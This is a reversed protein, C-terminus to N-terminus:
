KVKQIFANLKRQLKDISEFLEKVESEHFYGLGKCLLLQTELEFSSGIAIELFRKFDKDSSRSCGEATNSPISIAAKNLQSILNFQEKIPLKSTKLYISKAVEMALQWVELTRFDRM